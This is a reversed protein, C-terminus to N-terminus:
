VRDFPNLSVAADLHEPAFHAYRMTMTITSHGLIQQLVLINGGNMMFHSAFTHRLVHTRQGKPLLIDAKKLAGEFADYCSSFLNGRRRPLLEFLKPYIPVTRNKNGKTKTFTVRYPMVQSQNLLQAEGWRAGTALCIRVVNGLDNNASTDCAHLLRKIDDEYLFALEQEGERFQRIGDFLNGGEWEGLRKLEAFVAHLYSQECNDM